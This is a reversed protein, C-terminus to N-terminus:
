VFRRPSASWSPAGHMTSHPRVGRGSPPCRGLGILTRWITWSTSQSICLSPRSGPPLRQSCDPWPKTEFTSLHPWASLSLDEEVTYALARKQRMGHGMTCTGKETNKRFVYILDTARVSRTTASRMPEIKSPPLQRGFPLRVTAARNAVLILTANRVLMHM